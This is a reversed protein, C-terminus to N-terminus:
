TPLPLTTLDRFAREFAGVVDADFHTHVCSRLEEM